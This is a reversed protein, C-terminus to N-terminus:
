AVVRRAARGREIMQGLLGAPDGTRMLATGVLAVAYGHSAIVAVDDPTEVGSEAVRPPGAPFHRMMRGFRSPDVALTKLDRCNLGVLVRGTEDNRHRLIESAREMDDEDFTELLVFLGLTRAMDMMETVRSDDLMRIILLAGGAGALRAACLQEPAVLFDKAMAPVQLPGLAAAARRLHEIDGGFREPETLVSVACAGARAYAMSRSEIASVEPCLTGASPSRLKVEAIVDFGAPSLQLPPSQPAELARRELDRGEVNTLLERARIESARAMESLFDGQERM